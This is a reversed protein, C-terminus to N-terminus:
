MHKFKINEFIRKLKSGCAPCEQRGHVTSCGICCFELRQSDRSYVANDVMEDIQRQMDQMTKYQQKEFIEDRKRVAMEMVLDEKLKDMESMKEKLEMRLEDADDKGSVVNSFKTFINIMKGCKAYELRFSDLFLLQDKDYSDEPMHGIFMQRMDRDIKCKKMVSKLLDRLEHSTITNKTVLKTKYKTQKKARQALKPLLDSVWRDTIPRCKTNLFIPDGLKMHIGTKEFRWDLASQLSEIADRELGCVHPIKTKIRSLNFVVPCLDLDWKHYDETGFYKVIYQWAEFNFRDCFTSNDTGSHFKALIVSEEVVSPKGKRLIDALDSLSMTPIFNDSKSGDELTVADDRGITENFSYKIESDNLRFYASIACKINNMYKISKNKHIDDMLYLKIMQAFEPGQNASNRYLDLFTEVTDMVVTNTVIKQLDLGMPIVQKITIPRDHLWNSFHWLSLSYSRRSGGGTHKTKASENRYNTIGLQKRMYSVTPLNCFIVFTIPEVNIEELINIKKGIRVVHKFVDRTNSINKNKSILPNYKKILDALVYEIDPKLLELVFKIQKRIHIGYNKESEFKSNIKIIKGRM